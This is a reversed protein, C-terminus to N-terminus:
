VEVCKLLPRQWCNPPLGLPAVAPWSVRRPRERRSRAKRQRKAAAKTAREWRQRSPGLSPGVASWIGPKEAEASKHDANPRCAASASATLVSLAAAHTDYQGLKLMAESLKMWVRGSLAKLRAGARMGKADEARATNQGMPIIM